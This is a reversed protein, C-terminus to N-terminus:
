PFRCGESGRQRAPGSIQVGGGIRGTLCGRARVCLRPRPGARPRAMKVPAPQGGRGNEPRSIIGAFFGFLKKFIWQQIKQMTQQFAESVHTVGCECRKHSQLRDTLSLTRETSLIWQNGALSRLSSENCFQCRKHTRVPQSATQFIELELSRAGYRYVCQQTPM